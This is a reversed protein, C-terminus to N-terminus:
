KWLSPHPHPSRLVFAPLSLIWSFTERRFSHQCGWVDPWNWEGSFPVPQWQAYLAAMAVSDCILNHDFSSILQVKTFNIKSFSTMLPTNATCVIQKKLCFATKNVTESNVKNVTKNVLTLIHWKGMSSSLLHYPVHIHKSKPPFINVLIFYSPM